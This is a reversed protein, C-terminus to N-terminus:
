RRPVAPSPTGPSPVTPPPGPRLDVTSIAGHTTPVRYLVAAVDQTRENAHRGLELVIHTGGERAYAEPSSPMEGRPFYVVLVAHDELDVTPLEADPELEHWVERLRAQDFVITHSIRPASDPESVLNLREVAIRKAGEPISGFEVRAYGPPLTDNPIAAAPAVTLPRFHVAVAVPISLLVLAGVIVTHRRYARM